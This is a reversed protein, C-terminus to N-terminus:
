EFLSLQNANDENQSQLADTSFLSFIPTKAFLHLRLIQTIQHMDRELGLRKRAIALLCYTAIATWVQIHM